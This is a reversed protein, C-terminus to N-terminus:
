HLGFSVGLRFSMLDAESRNPYLIVSGDPQDVVDGVTLYNAVQNDLREVALDIFTNGGARFRLGGGYTWSFVGDSYNTTELYPGYGDNDDVNSSTVFYSFGAGAHVYPQIDGDALVIEPGVSGYLISNTTTVESVVRCTFSCYDIQEWGYVVGGLDVRLRLHGDAAMPVGGHLGLGFGHDVLQGMEGVPNAAVFSLGAFGGPGERQAEAHEGLGFSGMMVAVIAIRRRRM